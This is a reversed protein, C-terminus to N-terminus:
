DADSRRASRLFEAVADNTFPAMIRHEIVGTSADVTKAVDDTIRLVAAGLRALESQLASTDASSYAGSLVVLELRDREALLSIADTLTAAVILDAGAVLSEILNTLDTRIFPDSEVVLFSKFM